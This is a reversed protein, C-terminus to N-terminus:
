SQSVNFFPYVAADSQVTRVAANEQLLNVSLVEGIIIEPFLGGGKELFSHFFFSKRHHLSGPLEQGPQLFFAYLDGQGGGGSPFLHEAMQASRIKRVKELHYDAPIHHLM